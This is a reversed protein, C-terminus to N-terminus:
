PRRGPATSTRARGCCMSKAPRTRSGAAPSSTSSSRRWPSAARLSGWSRARGRGTSSAGPAAQLLFDEQTERSRLRQGRAALQRLDAELRDSTGGRNRLLPQTFSLFLSHQHFVPLGTEFETLEGGPGFIPVTAAEQELYRYDWNVGARAGTRWVPRALQVGVGATTSDSPSFSSNSVPEETALFPDSSLLWSEGARAALHEAEAIEQALREARFLPHTERLRALWADQTLPEAAPAAVALLCAPLLIRCLPTM